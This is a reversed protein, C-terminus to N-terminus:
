KWYSSWCFKFACVYKSMPIPGIMVFRRRPHPSPYLTSMCICKAMIIAFPELAIGSELYYWNLVRLYWGSQINPTKCFASFLSDEVIALYFISFPTCATHVHLNTDKSWLGTYRLRGECCSLSPVQPGQSFPMVHFSMGLPPAWRIPSPGTSTYLLCYSGCKVLM